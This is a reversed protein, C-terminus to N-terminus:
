DLFDLYVAHAILQILYGERARRVTDVKPVQAVTIVLAMKQTVIQLDVLALAYCVHRAHTHFEPTKVPIDQPPLPFYTFYVCWKKQDTVVARLLCCLCNQFCCNMIIIIIIPQM